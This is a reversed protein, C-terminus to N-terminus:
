KNGFLATAAENQFIQSYPSKDAIGTHSVIKDNLHLLLM